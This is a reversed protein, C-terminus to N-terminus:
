RRRSVFYIFTTGAANNTCKYLIVCGGALSIYVYIICAPWKYCYKVSLCCSLPTPPMNKRVFVYAPGRYICRIVCTGRLIQTLDSWEEWCSLSAYQDGRKSPIEVRSAPNAPHSPSPPVTCWTYVGLGGEGGPRVGRERVLVNTYLHLPLSEPLLRSLELGFRQNM